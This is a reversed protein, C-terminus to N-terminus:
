DQFIITEKQSVAHNFVANWLSEDLHAAINKQVEEYLSPTDKIADRAGQYDFSDRELDKIMLDKKANDYCEQSCFGMFRKYQKKRCIIRANCPSYRCNECNDTKLGSYICEGITVHTEDDGVRTSVRGDFTYLNGLRNGDNYSNVYKVVGGELAYVDKFGAKTVMASLKECRVGGTCYWVIKKDGFLEKYKDLLDPVERFNITWAPIANKFHGLKYEYDNRMDVIVRDDLDGSDILKKFDEASMEKRYKEIEWQTVTTGLAVIEKRYKVVMRDFYYSDVKTSKIDIDRIDKFYKSNSLYMKYAKIQWENWTLTASIWEEGIYIRGKMGIDKCFTLHEKVETHPDDIDVFKYFTLLTYLLKKM